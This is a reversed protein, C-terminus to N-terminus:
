NAHRALRMFETGGEGFGEIFGELINGVAPNIETIGEKIEEVKQSVMWPKGGENGWAAIGNDIWKIGTKINQKAWVRFNIYGLAFLANGVFKFFAWGLSTLEELIEEAIENEGDDELALFLTATARVDIKLKPPQGKSFIMGALAKGVAEGAVNGLNAFATNIEEIFQKDSKNFDFNYIKQTGSIANNMMWTGIGAVTATGAIGLGTVMAGIAGVGAVVGGVVVGGILVVAGIGAAAALPQEKGWDSFLKWDGRLIASGLEKAGEWMKNALNKLNILGQSIWKNVTSGIKNFFNGLPLGLSAGISTDNLALGSTKEKKSM